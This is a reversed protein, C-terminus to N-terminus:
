SEKMCWIKTFAEDRNESVKVYDQEEVSFCRKLMKERCTERLQIDLGVPYESVACAAYGGSHSLSFQLEGTQLM